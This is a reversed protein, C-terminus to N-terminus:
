LWLVNEAASMYWKFSGTRRTIPHADKKRTASVCVTPHWCIRGWWLSSLWLASSSLSQTVSFSLFAESLWHFSYTDNLQCQVSSPTHLVHTKVPFCTQNTQIHAHSLICFWLLNKGQKVKHEFCVSDCRDTVFCPMVMHGYFHYTIRFMTGHYSLQYWMKSVDYYPKGHVMTIFVVM